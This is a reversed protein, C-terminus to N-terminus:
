KLLLKHEAFSFYSDGAIRIHDLVTIGLLKSGECLVGTTEIDQASPECNGSPHNHCLIIAAANEKVATSFIERPHVLTKNQTGISTVHIQIIEHAGNLSICVFHEKPEISYHKIYPIIDPPQKIVARLHCNKRRGLEIAAAIALARSKGVGKIKELNELLLSNETVNLMAAIEESMKQISIGKIGSGLLLMILEADSPYSLGRQLTLERINPKLSM